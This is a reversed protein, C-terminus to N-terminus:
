ATSRSAQWSKEGFFNRWGYFAVWSLLFIGGGYGLATRFISAQTLYFITLTGAALLFVHSEFDNRVSQLLMQLAGLVLGILASGIAVGPWGFQGYFDIFAPTAVSGRVRSAQAYRSFVEAGPDYLEQGKLKALLGVNALGYHPGNHPIHHVVLVASVAIRGFIRSVTSRLALGARQTKTLRPQKKVVPPPSSVLTNTTAAPKAASPQQTASPLKATVPPQKAMPAQETAQEAPWVPGFGYRQEVLYLCFLAIVPVSLIAAMRILPWPRLATAVTLQQRRWYLICAVVAILAMFVILPRKQFTAVLAITSLAYLLWFPWAPAGNERRLLAYLTAMPLLNFVGLIFLYHRGLERRLSLFSPIADIQRALDIITALAIGIFGIGLALAIGVLALAPYNKRSSSPMAAVPLSQALRATAMGAITTVVLGFTVIAFTRLVDDPTVLELRFSRFLSQVYAPAAYFIVLGILVFAISLGTLLAIFLNRRLSLIFCAAVIAIMATLFTTHLM